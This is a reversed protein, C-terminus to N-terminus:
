SPAAINSRRPSIKPSAIPVPKELTRSTNDVKTVTISSQIRSHTAPIKPVGQQLERQSVVRSIPPPSILRMKVSELRGEVQSHIKTIPIPTQIAPTSKLPLKTSVPADIPRFSHATVKLQRHPAEEATHRCSLQPQIVSGPTTDSVAAPARTGVQTVSQIVSATRQLHPNIHPSATM